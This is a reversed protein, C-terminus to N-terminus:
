CPSDSIASGPTCSPIAPRSRGHRGRGTFAFAGNNAFHHDSPFFAVVADPDVRDIHTLSYALAAATGHNYPQILLREAAVGALQDAYFPEHTQTLLFLTQRDPIMGSVRSRTQDLLTEGGTLACFQDSNPLPVPTAETGTISTNFSQTLM